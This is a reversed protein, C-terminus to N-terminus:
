NNSSKISAGNSNQLESDTPLLEGTSATGAPQPHFDELKAKDIETFSKEITSGEIQMLDSAKIVFKKAAAQMFSLSPIYANQINTFNELPPTPMFDEPSVKDLEALSQTVTKSELNLVKGVREVFRKATERRFTNSPINATVIGQYDAIDEILGAGLFDDFGTVKWQVEEGHAIAAVNLIQTAFERVMQGYKELLLQEPRRDEKKSEGSRAIIASGDAASMAVQQLADYINRKIEGLYNIATTFAGGPRETWGIEQGPKLTLYYGDGFKQNNSPDDDEDEVGTIVPMAYNTTYLGWEVAAMQGFYSKQLEFLQDGMWLSNPMTLTLVPMEFKGGYSFIEQNDLLVKIDVDADKLADLPLPTELPKEANKLRKRVTYRSALIRGDDEKQYITFDHEPVPPADWRERVMKFRHLKVFRFGEDDSYWDWLASRPHLVVYPELERMQKQAIRNTATGSAIRTDVQAIAKGECLAAMMAMMLLSKFSARADDDGDLLAGNPFFREDWFNDKSGSYIADKAFLQANFRSLIPGIKNSYTALKIREEMVKDPRGDPNPLVQRKKEDTM